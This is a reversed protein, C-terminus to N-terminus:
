FDVSKSDFDKEQEEDEQSGDRLVENIKGRATEVTNMDPQMVYLLRAGMSYTPQMDSTGDLSYTDVTWAPMEDLQYNVLAYIKGTPIDTQIAGGLADLISSYNALLTGSNTIKQLIASFVEQQNLLRHRDGTAYAKRERAFALACKGDVSQKGVVFKCSKDAKATFATDSEIEIGGIADVISMVSSFNVKVYYKIDIGLLDEVTTVSKEIGFVGAHTLKDKTGTIDHLQVYYDRPISTVLIRNTEQNVTIVMNVDSRAVTSIDGYTDVGSIFINFPASTIEAEKEDETEVQIEITYIIKTAEGFEKDLETIINYYTDPLFIASTKQEELGQAMEFYDIFRIEELSVAEELKQIATLYAGETNELIGVGKGDIDEIKENESDDLVVVDFVETRYKIESIKNLFNTTIVFYITGIIAGITLVSCVVCDVIRIWKKIKNRKFITFITIAAFIAVIIWLPMLWKLPLIGFISIIASLTILCINALVTLVIMVVNLIKKEGTKKSNENKNKVM